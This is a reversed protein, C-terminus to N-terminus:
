LKRNYTRRANLPSAYIDKMNPTYSTKKRPVTPNESVITQLEELKLANTIKLYTVSKLHEMTTQCVAIVAISVTEGPENKELLYLDLLYLGIDLHKKILFSSLYDKAPKVSVINVSKDEFVPLKEVLGWGDVDGQRWIDLKLSLYLEAITYKGDIM